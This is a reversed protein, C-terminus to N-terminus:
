RHLIGWVKFAISLLVVVLIITVVVIHKSEFKM